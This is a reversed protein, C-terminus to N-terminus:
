FHFILQVIFNEIKITKKLNDFLKFDYNGSKPKINSGYNSDLYNIKRFTEKNVDTFAIKSILPHLFFSV